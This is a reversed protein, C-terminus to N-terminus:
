EIEEDVITFILFSVTNWHAWVLNTAQIGLDQYYYMIGTFWDLINLHDM